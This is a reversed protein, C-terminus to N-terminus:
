RSGGAQLIQNLRQMHEIQDQPPLRSVTETLRQIAAERAAGESGKVAAWEGDLELATPQGPPPAAQAVLDNLRAMARMEAEPGLARAQEIYQEILAQRKAGDTEVRIHDGTATLEDRPRAPDTPPAPREHRLEQALANLQNTFGIMTEMDAGLRAIMEMGADSELPTIRGQARARALLGDLYARLNSKDISPAAREVAAHVQARIDPGGARSPAKGSAAPASPPEVLEARAEQSQSRERAPRRTAFYIGATGAVAAIGIAAALRRSSM